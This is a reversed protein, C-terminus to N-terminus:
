GSWNVGVCGYKVVALATVVAAVLAVPTLVLGEDGDSTGTCGSGRRLM